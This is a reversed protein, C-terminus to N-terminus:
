MNRSFRLFLGRTDVLADAVDCVAKASVAVFGGAVALDLVVERGASSDSTRVGTGTRVLM